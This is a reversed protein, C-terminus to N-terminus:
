RRIFSVLAPVLEPKLPLGPQSYTALNAARDAPAARLIHNMGDILLLRADPKAAALTKADEVSAQIDTM